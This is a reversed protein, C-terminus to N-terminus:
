IIAFKTYIEKEFFLGRYLERHIKKKTVVSCFNVGWKGGELSFFLFFYFFFFATTGTCTAQEGLAVVVVLSHILPNGKTGCKSSIAGTRATVVICVM